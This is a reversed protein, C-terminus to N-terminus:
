RLRLVKSKWAAKAIQKFTGRCLMKGLSALEEPLVRERKKSPWEVCIKVPTKSREVDGTPSTVTQTETHYTPNTKKPTTTLLPTSQMFRPSGGQGLISSETTRGKLTEVDDEIYSPLFSARKSPDKTKCSIGHETAKARYQLLLSQDIEILKNKIGRRKRLLGLCCKCIYQSSKTVVFLLDELEVEAGSKGYVYNRDSSLTIQKFCLTCWEDLSM